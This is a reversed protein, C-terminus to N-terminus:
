KILGYLTVFWYISLWLCLGITIIKTIKSYTVMGGNKLYYIDGTFLPYLTAPSITIAALIIFWSKRYWPVQEYTTYITSSSM